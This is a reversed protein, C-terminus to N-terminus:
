KDGVSHESCKVDDNFAVNREERKSRVYTTLARLHLLSTEILISVLCCTQFDFSRPEIVYLLLFSKSDDFHGSRSQRLNLRGNCSYRLQIPRILQVTLAV